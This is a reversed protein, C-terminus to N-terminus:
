TEAMGEAQEAAADEAMKDLKALLAIYGEGEYASPVDHSNWGYGGIFCYNCEVETGDSATFLVSIPHNYKM